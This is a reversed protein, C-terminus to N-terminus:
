SSTGRLYEKMAELIEISDNVMGLAKNCRHCILGRFEGTKHDHDINLRADSTGNGTPIKGCIKCQGNQQVLAQEYEELTCGGQKCLWKLQSRRFQELNKIRWARHYSPRDYSVGGKWHPNGAGMFDTQLGM